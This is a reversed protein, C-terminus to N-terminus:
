NRRCAATARDTYNAQLSRGRLKTKLKTLNIPNIPAKGIRQRPYPRWGNFNCKKLLVMAVLVSQRAAPLEADPELKRSYATVYCYYHYYYSCYYHAIIYCVATGKAFCHGLWMRSTYRCIETLVYCICRFQFKRAFPDVFISWDYPSRFDRHLRKPTNQTNILIVTQELFTGLDSDNSLPDISSIFSNRRFHKSAHPTLSSIWKIHLASHFHLEKCELYAWYQIPGSWCATVMPFFPGYVLVSFKSCRGPISGRDDLRASSDPSSVELSV